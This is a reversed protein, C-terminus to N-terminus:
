TMRRFHNKNYCAAHSLRMIRMRLCPLALASTAHLLASTYIPQHLASSKHRSLLGLEEGRAPQTQMNAFPIKLRKQLPAAASSSGSLRERRQQTHPRGHRTGNNILPQLNTLTHVIRVGTHLIGLPNSISQRRCRNYITPSL